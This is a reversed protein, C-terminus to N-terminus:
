TYKLPSPFAGGEARYLPLQGTEKLNWTKVVQRKLSPLKSLKKRKGPTM